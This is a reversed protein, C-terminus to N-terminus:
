ESAEAHGEATTGAELNRLARAIAPQGFGRRQLWGALRRRAVPPPLRQLRRWRGGAQALALEEEAQPTLMAGITEDALDRAIGKAILEAKLRRRGGPRLALRDAVWARAFRADDIWGAHTLEALLTQLVAGSTGRRRLAAALETRSRLRRNLLRLATARGDQRVAADAIRRAARADIDRGEEIALASVTAADLRFRGVGDIAVIRVHPARKPVAVRSVRLATSGAPDRNGQSGAPDM